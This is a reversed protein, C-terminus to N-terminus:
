GWPGQSYMRDAFDAALQNAELDTIEGLRVRDCVDSAFDSIRRDIAAQTQADSLAHTTM